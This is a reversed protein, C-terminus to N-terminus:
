CPRSHSGHYGWPRQDDDGFDRFLAAYAAADSANVADQYRRCMAVVEDPYSM